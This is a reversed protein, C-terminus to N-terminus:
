YVTVDRLKVTMTEDGVQGTDKKQLTPATNVQCKKVCERVLQLEILRFM